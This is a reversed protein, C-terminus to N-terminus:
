ILKQRIAVAVLQTITYVNFRKKTESLKVRVSNYKVNHLEAVEEM